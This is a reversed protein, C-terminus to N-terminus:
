TTALLGLNKPFEIALPLGVYVLGLIGIKKDKLDM